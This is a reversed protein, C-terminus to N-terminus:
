PAPEETVLAALDFWDEAIALWALATLIAAILTTAGAKWWLRQRDPAGAFHEPPPSDVPRVGVPLLAFFACWWIVVFVVFTGFLSM